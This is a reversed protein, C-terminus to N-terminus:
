SSTTPIWDEEGLSPFSLLLLDVEQGAKLPEKGPPLIALADTMKMSLLNGSSQSILPTFTPQGDQLRFHGRVFNFRKKNPMTPATLTAKLRRHFLNKAGMMKRITPRVFLEFTVMSSIPNGPLGFVLTKASTGFVVPKGPKIKVKWFHIQVGLEEMTPRILDYDGMSVGGSSILIDAELGAQIQERIQEADDKVVPLLIPIGGAMKVLAALAFRNSDLIKGPPLDEHMEILEDGCSLIAVRPRRIVNVFGRKISALIGIEGAGIATGRELLVAGRRADIGEVRISENKYTPRRFIVWDGDREVEEVPIVGDCGEPIAAGTFINACEGEVIPKEAVQSARVEQTLRLRVPREESADLVDVLRVGYGDMASYSFRPFNWPALIDEGLVRDTADLLGVSEKSLVFAKELIIKLAEEIPLLM